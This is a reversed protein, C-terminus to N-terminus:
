QLTCAFIQKFSLSALQLSPPAPDQQTPSLAFIYPKEDILNVLFDEHEEDLTPSRSAPRGSGTRSEVFVDDGAQKAKSMWSQAARISISPKEPPKLDFYTDYNIIEGLPFED